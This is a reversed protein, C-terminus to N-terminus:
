EVYGLAELKRRSGADLLFDGEPGVPQSALWAELEAKLTAAREPREMALDVKEGPDTELDYLELRNEEEVWILKWRGRRLGWGDGVPEGAEVEEDGEYHRRYLWVSRAPDLSAQGTMVEALSEGQFEAPSSIGSLALVSPALDLWSVPASVELGASAQGPLRVLLPVRVGEEYIHVGHHWHGREMLGEGHDGTVVVLTNEDLGMRILGQLLRGIEQDMYALTADYMFIVRNRKLAEEPGPAFPPKYGDPIM